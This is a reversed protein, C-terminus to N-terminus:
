KALEIARTERVVNVKIQGPYIMEKEIQNAIDRALVVISDDTVQEPKVIIRVERGAQIAYSKDVGDYSNCIEELKQLRKIYTSVTERRAGPRSASITDAIQVLVSELSTHETDGHHAAVCSIVEEKEKYKRLLEVGLTVHTGEVDQNYAKGIDHLLGARKALNVDLGLEEALLGCLNSVEISHNLVNQGYSTRYKLKGLMKVLDPHLNMVGTEYLAREGEEKITNEIEEKAKEIMEEIKGPHIRGDAILREIAIRAVERRIPDFSSLVIVDPTDDIILDIGTLTEITKINRGERGIIRGKLDDNPLAVTTVTAESTHDTSYRQITGILLEKAKKDVEEKAKEEELRIYEAMEKTMDGKLNKMMQEKAEEVTMKAIKGLADIERQKANELDKEKKNLEENRKTINNEKEEILAARKDVLDQRQNIRNELDQIEKKRLKSETELEDKRRMMEDKAQIVADKKIREADLKSDNLIKEAQEEASGITAEAINKRYRIGMFFFIVSGLIFCGAGVLGYLM